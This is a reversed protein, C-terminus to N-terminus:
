LAIPAKDLKGIRSTEIQNEEFRLQNLDLLNVM